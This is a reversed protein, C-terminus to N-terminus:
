CYCYCRGGTSSLPQDYEGTSFSCYSYCAKGHFATPLPMQSWALLIPRSAVEHGGTSPLPQGDIRRLVTYTGHGFWILTTSGGWLRWHLLPSGKRAAVHAALVAQTPRMSRLLSWSGATPGSKQGATPGSKQNVAWTAQFPLLAALCVM